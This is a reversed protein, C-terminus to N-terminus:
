SRGARCQGPDGPGHGAVLAAAPDQGPVVVLHNGLPKELLDAVTGPELGVKMQTRCLTPDNGSRLIEGEAMWLKEMDIGGIRLLTVPGRRFEGQIGVGLGSEFHSRLSFSDVLSRPVTCHALWLMDTDADLRAPNAMWPLGGVLRDAWLMGVTSVIDGECGAITGEDNLQSLAVCGSTGLDFLVDFCRVAVADLREEKVTAKLATFFQAADHIKGGDAEVLAAARDTLEAALPSADEAARYRACVSELGVRVVQPGWMRRVVAPEPSSAVLWDSPKGVSGIRVERLRRRVDLDEVAEGLARAGTADEPGQLYIIRGGAGLQHLRALAELAAPLSNHGPHALLCMPEGPDTENRQEWLELIVRETGGTVVLVVLPATSTAADIDRREGGLGDLVPLYGAILKIVASEDHLESSVPTYTFRIAM